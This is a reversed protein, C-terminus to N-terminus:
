TAEPTHWIPLQFRFCTGSGPTSVVSLACNHLEVIRKAIALGLGLHQGSDGGTTGRYFREFIYPLDTAPIGSGTDSVSVALYGKDQQLRLDVRGGKPTHHLANGLLNELVREVLGIDAAAFPTAAPCDIHLTIGDDHARPNFKQAVDHLLEAPAFPEIQPKVAGADLKALEFLESVLRGLRRSHGLAADLYLQQQQPTLRDCKLKLTELYGHLCTLPTRLDHSVHSVLERRLEDRTSLEQLLNQIHNAMQEFTAGLQDIEDGQLGRGRYAAHERFGSRRFSDLTRTLQRLRRTLLAFGWLGALLGCLLSVGLLWASLRLLWSDRYLQEISDYMEGRLVVYLYGEPQAASPLPTVSFSKRQEHSRPDDGLVFTEGALFQRIPALDVRNRKVVGPDASYALIAGDADLLYIEISPNITMYRQFTDKLASQNITDGSVLHQDQVLNYALDRNFQQETVRLYHETLQSALGLYLLGIVILSASFVLALKGYLTNRHFM